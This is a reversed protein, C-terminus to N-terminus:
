TKNKPSDHRSGIPLPLQGSETSLLFHETSAAGCFTASALLMTMANEDRNQVATKFEEAEAPDPDRIGLESMSAGQNFTRNEPTIKSLLFIFALFGLTPLQPPGHLCNSSQIYFLVMQFVTCSYNKGRLGLM